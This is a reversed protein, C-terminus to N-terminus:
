RSREWFRWKPKPLSLTQEAASRARHQELERELELLRNGLRTVDKGLRRMRFRRPIAGLGVFAGGFLLGLAFVGLTMLYLPATAEVDFPWLSLTVNQRNSLAFVLAALFIVFGLIASLLKM